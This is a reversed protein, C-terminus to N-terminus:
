PTWSPNLWTSALEQSTLVSPIKTPPKDLRVCEIKTSKQVGPEVLYDEFLLGGLALDQRIGDSLNDLTTGRFGGCISFESCVGLDESWHESISKCLVGLKNPKETFRQFVESHQFEFRAVHEHSMYHDYRAFAQVLDQAHQSPM